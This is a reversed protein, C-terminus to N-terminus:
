SRTGETGSAWELYTNINEDLLGRDIQWDKEFYGVPRPIVVSAADKALSYGHIAYNYPMSTDVGRVWPYDEAVLRIETPYSPATGLLHVKVDKGITREIYRLLHLRAYVNDCTIITHRPIGMVANAYTEAVNDVMQYLEHMSRGQIVVMMIQEIGLAPSRRWFQRTTTLTEKADGIVDPAVLENAAYLMSMAGLREDNVPQGEAAGNDLILYHDEPLSSYVAKYTPDDIQALALHYDSRLATDFYGKPPILAAKV